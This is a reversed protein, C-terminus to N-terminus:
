RRCGGAASRELGGQEEARQERRDGRSLDQVAKAARPDSPLPPVAFAPAALLVLAIVAHSLTKM